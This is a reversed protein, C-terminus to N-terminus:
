ARPDDLRPVVCAAFELAVEVVAGLLAEDRGRQEEPEGLALRVGRELELELADARLELGPQRFQALERVADMGGHQGVAAQPRRDVRQGRARAERHGDFAVEGLTGRGRDLQREVERDGLRQGVDRLVGARALGHDPDLADALLGLDLDAVVAAATGVRRAAGAKTPEDVPEAGQAPVQVDLAGRAAPRRNAGDDRQVRM